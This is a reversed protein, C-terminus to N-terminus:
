PQVGGGSGVEYLGGSMEAAPTGNHVGVAGRGDDAPGLGVEVDGSPGVGPGATGAHAARAARVNVFSFRHVRCPGHEALAADHDPTCYGKHEAFGYEPYEAALGVMIRDRTVKALVSAAAVCAAAQDGKPVALAPAGFGRVPFGDTLV